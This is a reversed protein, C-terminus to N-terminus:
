QLTSYYVKIKIRNPAADILARNLTLATTSTLTPVLMLAKLQQDPLKDNIYADLFSTILVRYARQSADYSVNAPSSNRTQVYGNGQVTRLEGNTKLPRNNDGLQYLYARNPIPYVAASYAHVPIVLEARNIV